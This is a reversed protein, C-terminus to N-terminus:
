NQSVPGASCSEWTSLVLVVCKLQKLPLDCYPVVKSQLVPFVFLERYIWSGPLHTPLMTQAIPCRLEVHRGERFNQWNEKLQLAAVAVKRDVPCM